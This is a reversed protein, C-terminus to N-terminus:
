YSARLTVGYTAPENPYVMTSNQLPPAFAGVFYVEDTLNRGWFDVSWRGDEPGIGIRGNFIAFADNDTRGSPDRNLTQTRYGNNWRGDLYFLARLNGGLPQEYTIAGTVTYESTFAFPTGAVVTNPAPDLANFVVTSDYFADTYVVGAQLTLNDTPRAAVELEVGQSISEPINRTIFNFGNFANLQYDQIQQYFGAINVTTTGGLITTKLGIEYADTFEPNFQLDDTCVRGLPNAVACSGVATTAPTIFFGSRDVNFGGAKYGRSYGGYLMTSDSLHYALSATGSFEEEESSDTYSGNAIPNVAPNCALNMLQSGGASGQIAAVIGGPTPTAAATNTEMLRLADCSTSTANLNANLDKTEQSYRVGVTLILDDTLAFENHTFIGLSETNVRWNDSQQGQGTSNPLVYGLNATQVAAAVAPFAAFSTAATCQFISNAATFDYLECTSGGITVLNTYLSSTAGIQIRDTTDLNEDGYFLGVLWNLRGAEGQFRFEQTFNEFSVELGDRYAIDAANFDVDQDRVASWDRYATISTFNVGGLDWTLEGSIGEEETNEGYGRGPTVTMNREEVNPTITGAGGTILSIAGQTPGSPPGGYNNPTYTLPTVGCCVEDTNAADVIVRLSADPNIDWLMQGRLSGRNRDNIDDGSIVDTIYGERARVSGDFRFALSDTVPINVGGRAGVEELDDVGFTTELYIGPDFDPGSTIVSIAGASTNRGFLTGQPGRLVEVRELEPLDTLAAGARARYVGDIFIGVAAEFGPNDAGTGIGRIRATTGSSNSQGTGMELSPAVQTVDRLDRAGSNELQDGGVATVALPVDQIAAARGTATVVIEDSVEVDDQALAPTVGMAALSASSLLIRTWNLKKSM